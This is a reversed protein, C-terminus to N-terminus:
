PTEYLLGLQDVAKEKGPTCQQQLHAVLAKLHRSNATHDLILWVIVCCVIVCCVIVCCVIVCCVYMRVNVSHYVMSVEAQSEPVLDSDEIIKEMGVTFAANYSGATVLFRLVCLAIMCSCTNGTSFIKGASAIGLRENLQKRYFAAQEEASLKAGGVNFVAYEHGSSALLHKGCSLLGEVDVEEFTMRNGFYKQKAVCDKTHAILSM